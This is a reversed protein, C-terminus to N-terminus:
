YQVIFNCIAQSFYSRVATLQWNSATSFFFFIMHDYTKVYIYEQCTVGLSFIYQKIIYANLNFDTYLKVEFGCNKYLNTEICLSLTYTHTHFLSPHEWNRIEM